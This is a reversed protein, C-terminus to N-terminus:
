DHPLTQLGSGGPEGTDDPEGIPRAPHEGPVSDDRKAPGFTAGNGNTKFNIKGHAHTAGRASSGPRAAGRALANANASRHTATSRPRISTNSTHTAGPATTTPNLHLIETPTSAPTRINAAPARGGALQSGANTMGSASLGSGDHWVGGVQNGSVFGAKGGSWTSGGSSNADRQPKPATAAAGAQWRSASSGSGWSEQAPATPPNLLCASALLAVGFVIKQHGCNM